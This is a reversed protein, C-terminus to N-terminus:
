LLRRAQWTPAPDLFFDSAADNRMPMGHLRFQTNWLVRRDKRTRWFDLYAAEAAPLDDRDLAVKVKELGVYDLDIRSFMKRIRHQDVTVKRNKPIEADSTERIESSALVNNLSKRATENDASHQVFHFHSEIKKPKPSIQAEASTALGLSIAMTLLGFVTLRLIM